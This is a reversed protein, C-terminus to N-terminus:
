SSDSNQPNGTIFGAVGVWEFVGDCDIVGVDDNDGVSDNTCLKEGDGEMVGDELSEFLNFVTSITPIERPQM